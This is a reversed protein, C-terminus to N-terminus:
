NEWVREEGLFNVIVHMAVRLILVQPVISTMMGIFTDAGSQFLNMFVETFKVTYNM